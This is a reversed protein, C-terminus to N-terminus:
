EWRWWKWWRRQNVVTVAQGIRGRRDERNAAARSLMDNGTWKNRSAQEEKWVGDNQLCYVVLSADCQLVTVVTAAYSAMNIPMSACASPTHIAFFSAKATCSKRKREGAFVLRCHSFLAPPPFIGHHHRIKLSWSGPFAAPAMRTRRLALSPLSLVARGDHVSASTQLM